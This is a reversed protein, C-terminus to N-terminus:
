IGTKVALVDEMMDILKGLHGKSALQDLDYYGDEWYAGCCEQGCGFEVLTGLTVISDEFDIGRIAIENSIEENYLEDDFDIDKIKGFGTFAIHALGFEVATM